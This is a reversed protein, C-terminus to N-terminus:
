TSKGCTISFQQTHEWRLPEDGDGDDDKTLKKEPHTLQTVSGLKLIPEDLITAEPLQQIDIRIGSAVVRVDPEAQLM